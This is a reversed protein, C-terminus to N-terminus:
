ESSSASTSSMSPSVGSQEPASSALWAPLGVVVGGSVTGVLLWVLLGDVVTLVFAVIALISVGVFARTVSRVTSSPTPPPNITRWVVLAGISAGTLAVANPRDGVFFALVGLVTALAFAVSGMRHSHSRRETATAPAVDSDAVADTVWQLVFLIAVLYCCGIAVGVVVDIPYHVGVAIRSFAVLVIVVGAVLLRRRRTSVDSELALMAWIITGAIAHGSPFSTTGIEVAPAYLRAALAPLTEPPIAPGVGPRSVSFAGKFGVMVAYGGMVIAIWPAFRYRDGFWYATVVTPAVFWVSGLYSLFAFVFATWEPFVDRVAEVVAPDFWM